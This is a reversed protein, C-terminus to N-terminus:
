RILVKQTHHQTNNQLLVIYVGLNLHSVDIYNINNTSDLSTNFVVRGQLDYLSVTTQDTLVGEVAISKNKDQNYVKLTSLAGAENSLRESTRNTHIFFRGEGKLATQATFSYSGTNILTFTHTERDELYIKIGDNLYSESITISCQLGQAVNLSLPIVEQGTLSTYPLSQVAFDVNGYNGPEMLKSYICFNPATSMPMMADYGIDLGYTSAENFYFETHYKKSGSSLKLIFYGANIVATEETNWGSSTLSKSFNESNVAHNAYSSAVLILAAIQLYFQKM